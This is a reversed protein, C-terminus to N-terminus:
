VYIYIYVYKLFNKVQLYGCIIRKSRSNNNANIHNADGKKSNHHYGFKQRKEKRVPDKEVIAFSNNAHSGHFDNIDTTEHM